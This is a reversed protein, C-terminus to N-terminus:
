MSHRLLLLHRRSAACCGAGITMMTMMMMMMQHTECADKDGHCGVLAAAAAVCPMRAVLM